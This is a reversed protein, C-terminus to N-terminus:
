KTRVWAPDAPDGGLKRGILSGALSLVTAAAAATVAGEWPVSLLGGLDTEVGAGSLVAPGALTVLLVQVFTKVARDATRKWFKVTFITDDDDPTLGEQYDPLETM